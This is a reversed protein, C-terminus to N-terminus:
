LDEMAKDLSKKYSEPNQLQEKANKRVIVILDLWLEKANFEISRDIEEDSFHNYLKGIASNLFASTISKIRKFSVRYSQNNTIAEFLVKNLKEGDESSVAYPSDIVESVNISKNM